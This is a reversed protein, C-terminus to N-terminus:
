KVRGGEIVVQCRDEDGEDRTMFEVLLQYDSEKAVAEVTALTDDDMCEGHDIILLRLKPNTAMAMKVSTAIKEAASCQEFPIGHLTLDGGDNFTLGEVPWEAADLLHQKRDDCDEIQETLSASQENAEEARELEAQRGANAAIKANMEQADAISKTMVSLDIDTLQHVAAKRAYQKSKEATVEAQAKAASGKAKALLRELELVNNQALEATKEAQEVGREGRKTKERKAENEANHQRGDALEKHLADLSVPDSPINLHHQMGKAKVLLSKAQRNVMTRQDYLTKRRADIETFDLGVIKRLAEVRKRNDLRTFGLPDFGHHKYLKNLLTQPEPAEMGGDGMVRFTEKVKGNEQDWRREIILKNQFLEDDGDTTVKVWAETEGRSVPEDPWDCGRKGCIALMVARLASTKGAGNKGGVLYVHHGGVSVDIDKVGLVHHAEIRLVKM